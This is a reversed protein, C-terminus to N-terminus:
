SALRREVDGVTIETGTPRSVFEAAAANAFCVAAALEHGQALRAALAGCFLDGAGHASIQKVKYPLIATYVGRDAITVGEAGRTLVLRLDRRRALAGSQEAEIRNLVFVNTLSVLEPALERWPAGNLVVLGGGRHVARAAGVNAEEPIENQLLLVRASIKALAGVAAKRNAGSVVSAGYNGSNDVIAVSMGSGLAAEEIIASVDVGNAKLDVLLRHGFDDKGITGFFQTRAGFRVAAKAQNGGKGGCKFSWTEGFVTEDSRPLASGNIMIDLHLSGAVAVDFMEAAWCLQM